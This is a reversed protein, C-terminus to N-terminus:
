FPYLPEGPQGPHTTSRREGKLIVEYEEGADLYTTVQRLCLTTELPAGSPALGDDDITVKLQPRTEKDDWDIGTLGLNDKDIAALLTERWQALEAYTRGGIVFQVPKLIRAGFGQYMIVPVAKVGPLEALKARVEDM